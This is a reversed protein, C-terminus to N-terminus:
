GAKRFQPLKAATEESVKVAKYTKESRLLFEGRRDYNVTRILNGYTDYTYEIYGHEQESYIIDIRILQNQKNYTYIHTFAGGSSTGQSGDKTDTYTFTLTQTTPQESEAIWHKTEETLKRGSNDYSYTTESKQIYSEEGSEHLQYVPQGKENYHLEVRLENQLETVICKDTYTTTYTGASDRAIFRDKTKWGDEFIIQGSEIVTGDEEYSTETDPVYITVTKSKSMIGCSSFTLLMTILLLISIRQKM